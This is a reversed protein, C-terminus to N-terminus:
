PRLLAGIGYAAQICITIKTTISDHSRNRIECLAHVPLATETGSSRRVELFYYLTVHTTIPAFYQLVTAKRLVEASYKSLSNVSCIKLKVASPETARSATSIKYRIRM